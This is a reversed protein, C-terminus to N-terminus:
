KRRLACASICCGWFPAPALAVGNMRWEARFVRPPPASLVERLALPGGDGQPHRDRTYLLCQLENFCLDGLAGRRGWFSSRAWKLTPAGQTPAQGQCRIQEQAQSCM